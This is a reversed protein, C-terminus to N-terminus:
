RASQRTLHKPGCVAIVILAALWLLGVTYFFPEVQPTAFLNAWSNQSAHFLTVILLSGRTSNFLWTILIVEAFTWVAFWLIGISQYFAIHKDFFYPLHYLTEPIGILLAAALATYKKQLHPLMVGRWAIEETNFLVGLVIGAVFAVVITSLPYKSAPLAPVPNGLAAYIAIGGFLAIGTGCVALLYWVANVRWILFRQLLTRIGARGEMAGVVIFAAAAPAWGALFQVPLPLPFSLIGQSELAQPILIAWTLAYMIAILSVMPHRAIWNTRPNTKPIPASFTVSHEM